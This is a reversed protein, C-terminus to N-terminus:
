SVITWEICTRAKMGFTHKIREVRATVERDWFRNDVIKIIESHRIFPLAITTLNGTEHDSPTLDLLNQGYELTVVEGQQHRPSEKWPGWYFEGTPEFYFRWDDLGWSRNILKIGEIGTKGALIFTHKNSLIENSLRYNSVGYVNLIYKIIDRPQADVFSKTITQRRLQEMADKCKVTYIRKSQTDVVSGTFVPWLGQERYGQWIEVSQGKAIPGSLGLADLNIEACDVPNLRSSYVQFSEIKKVELDGIVIKFAPAIYEIMLLEGKRAQNTTM